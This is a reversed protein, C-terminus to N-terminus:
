RRGGKVLAQQLQRLAIHGVAPHRGDLAGVRVAFALDYPWGGNRTRPRVTQVYGATLTLSGDTHM